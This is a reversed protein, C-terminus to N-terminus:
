NDGLLELVCHEQNHNELVEYSEESLNPLHLQKLQDELQSIQKNKSVLDEVLKQSLEKKEKAIEKWEQTLDKHENVQERLELKDQLLKEIEKVQKNKIQNSYELDKETNEKTIKEMEEKNAKVIQEIEERSVMNAIKLDKAANTEELEKIRALARELESMPPNNPVPNNLVPPPIIPANLNAGTALAKQKNSEAIWLLKNAECKAIIRADEDMARFLSGHGNPVSLGNYNSDWNKSYLSGGIRVAENSSSSKESLYLGNSNGYGGKNTEESLYLGNKSM